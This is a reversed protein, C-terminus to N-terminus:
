EGLLLQNRTRYVCAAVYNDSLTERMDVAVGQGWENTKVFVVLVVEGKRYLDHNADVVRMLCPLATKYNSHIGGMNKAFASPFYSSDEMTPYYARSEDDKRPVQGVNTDGLTVNVSSVFPVFSPLSISGTNIKLDDLIVEPSGLTKYEEYNSANTHTALQDTPNFFPYHEGTKLYAGIEKGIVLPQLNLEDPIVGGANVGVDPVTIAFDSGVTKPAHRRYYVFITSDTPADPYPELPYATIEILRQGTNWAPGSNSWGIKSEAHQYNTSTNDLTLTTGIGSEDTITPALSSNYYLRWPLYTSTPSGSVLQITQQAYVYELSVEKTNPIVNSIPPANGNGQGPYPDYANTPPLETLVASGTPYGSSDPMPAEAVTGSLGRDISPYDFILEIFIERNSATSEANADGVLKYDAVGAQMGSNATIPNADLTIVVQNSGLGTINQIRVQQEIANVFHGDNHWCYGIDILKPLITNNDAPLPDNNNQVWGLHGSIDLTTLDITIQDGEYWFNGTGGVHAVSIGTSPQPNTNAPKAIIYIRETTPENSWRRAIHDFNQRWQGLNPAINADNRGYADCVLPTHSIGSSGDGTAQLNHAKAYWTKNTDDLLSHYQYDLEASFDIGRPYVRRRLDLVDYESIQDAFLGDPRDSSGVTVNGVYDNDALTGDHDHLAGTNFAGLTNFGDAGLNDATWRRFVYCIPIAYVYGDVTGLATADASSGTGAYWLGTDTPHKIFNYGGVTGGQSGQAEVNVNEFGFIHQSLDTSFTDMRLRYQVQVRRTSSVAVNPDQIKDDLYTSSDSLVNGAFYVKNANPKGEGNSGGAPQNLVRMGANNSSILTFSDATGDHNGDIGGNHNLFLYETGRTEAFTTVGDVTLGLNAGDYDNIAQALNRATEAPTAGVQFENVGIVGNPDDFATLIKTDQNQGNLPPPNSQGNIQFKFTDNHLPAIVKIRSKSQMAPTVERRWVELFVFEGRNGAGAGPIPGPLTIKNTGDTADTNRVDIVMGNVMAKFPNIVFSNATFDANLVGGVYPDEFSFSGITDDQGQYSIMGSPLTNKKNLIDQTLNLESDLMPRGAQYVVSDWAYNTPDLDRSTSPLYKKSM